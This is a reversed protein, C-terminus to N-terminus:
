VCVLQEQAAGDMDSDDEGDDTSEWKSFDMGDAEDQAGESESNSADPEAVDTGAADEKAKEEEKSRRKHNRKYNRNYALHNQCRTHGPAAPQTCEVCM